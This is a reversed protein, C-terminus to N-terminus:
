KSKFKQWITVAAVIIAALYSLDALAPEITALFKGLGALGGVGVAAVEHPTPPNM